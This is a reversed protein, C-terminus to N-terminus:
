RRRRAGYLVGVVLGCILFAAILLKTQAQGITMQLPRRFFYHHALAIAVLLVAACLGGAIASGITRGLSGQRDWLLEGPDIGLVRRAIQDADSDFSEHRLPLANRMVIERIDDPLQESAPMQAGDALLPILLTSRQLGERIEARVLDGANWLRPQHGGPEANLWKNGILVLVADSKEIESKIKAQYNEGPNLTGVDLFVNRKGLLICFRDYLRGAAPGADERRYSIFVKKAM